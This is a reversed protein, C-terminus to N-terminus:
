PIVPFDGTGDIKGYYHLISRFVNWLLGISLLGYFFLPISPWILSGGSFLGIVSFFLPFIGILGYLYMVFLYLPNTTFVEGTVLKRIIVGQIHASEFDSDLPDLGIRGPRHRYGPWGQLKGLDGKLQYFIEGPYKETTPQDIQPADTM